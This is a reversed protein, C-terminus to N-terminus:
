VVEGAPNRTWASRDGVAVTDIHANLLLSRGEGSGNRAGAVNPRGEYRGQEGVHLTYPAIEDRTAVWQDVTLGRQAFERAVVIQVPAEDGTVSPAGVLDLLLTVTRGRNREVADEIARRQSTTLTAM